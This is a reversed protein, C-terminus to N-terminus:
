FTSSPNDVNLARIVTRIAWAVAWLAIVAGAIQAGDDLSLLNFWAWTSFEDGDLLIMACTAKDAPQPNMLQLVGTAPVVEVCLAM